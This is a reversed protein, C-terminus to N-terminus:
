TPARRATSERRAKDCATLNYTIDITIAIFRKIASLTVRTRHDHPSTALVQAKPHGSPSTVDIIPGLPHPLDVSRRASARRIAGAAPTM